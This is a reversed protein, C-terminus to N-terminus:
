FFNDPHWPQMALDYVLQVMNDQIFDNATDGEEDALEAHYGIKFM